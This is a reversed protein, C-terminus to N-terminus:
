DWGRGDPWELSVAGYRGDRLDKIVMQCARPWDVRGGSMLAGRARGVAEVLDHASEPLEELKYRDKLRQPYCRSLYTLIEGAVEEDPLITEKVAGLGALILGTRPDDFKHWLMGPTDFLEFNSTIPIRRLDRTLGPTAGAEAKRKKSMANVLTSKGANPIGAILARVPRRQLWSAGSCLKRCEKPIADVGKRTSASVRVPLTKGQGRFEEAWRITADPDALDDKNLVALRPKGATLQRLLPNASALPARADLIEIVVDVRKLNEKILRKTKAM